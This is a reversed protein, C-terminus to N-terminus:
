PDTTLADSYLEQHIRLEIHEFQGVFDRFVDQLEASADFEKGQTEAEHRRVDKRSDLENFFVM